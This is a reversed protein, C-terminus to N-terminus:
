GINLRRPSPLKFDGRPSSSPSPSPSPPTIPPPPPVPSLLQQTEDSSKHHKKDKLQAHYEKKCQEMFEDEKRKAVKWPLWRSLFLAILLTGTTALYTYLLPLDLALINLQNGTASFIREWIMEVAITCAFSILIFTWGKRIWPIDKLVKYVFLCCIGIAVMFFVFVGFSLNLDFNDNVWTLAYYQGGVLIFIISIIIIVVVTIGEAAHFGYNLLLALVITYITAFVWTDIGINLQTFSLNWVEVILSAFFFAICITTWRRPDVFGLIELITVILIGISVVLLQYTSDDIAVM